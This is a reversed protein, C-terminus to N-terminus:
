GDWHYNLKSLAILSAPFSPFTRGFLGAAVWEDGSVTLTLTQVQLKRTEFSTTPTFLRRGFRDWRVFQRVFPSIRLNRRISCFGLVVPRCWGRDNRPVDPRPHSKAHGDCLRLRDVQWKRM